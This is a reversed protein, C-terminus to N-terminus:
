KWHVEYQHRLALLGEGMPPAHNVSVSKAGAAELGTRLVAPLGQSYWAPYLGEAWLSILASSDGVSDVIVKGGRYYLGFLKPFANVLFTTSLMRLVWRNLRTLVEQVAAESRRETFAPDGQSLYALSLEASHRAEIWEYLGIDQSFVARCEPSVQDLLARWASEGGEMLVADRVQRTVPGRVHTIRLAAPDLDPLMSNSLSGSM